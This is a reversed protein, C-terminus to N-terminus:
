GYALALVSPWMLVLLWAAISAIGQSASPIVSHSSNAAPERLAMDEMLASDAVNISVKGQIMSPIVLHSPNATSFSLYMYGMSASTVAEISVKGQTMSPIVAPSDEAMEVTNLKIFSYGGKAFSTSSRHHTGSSM